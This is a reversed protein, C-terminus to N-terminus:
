LGNQVGTKLVMFAEILTAADDAELIMATNTDKAQKVKTLVIAFKIGFDMVANERTADQM